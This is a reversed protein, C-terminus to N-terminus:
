KDARETGNRTLLALTDATGLEMQAIVLWASAAPRDGAAIADVAHQAAEEAALEAARLETAPTYEPTPRTPETTM